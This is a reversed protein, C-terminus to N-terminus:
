RSLILPYKTIYEIYSFRHLVLLEVNIETDGLVNIDEDHMM